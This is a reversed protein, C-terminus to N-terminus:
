PFNWQEAMAQAISPFFKSRLHRREEDTACSLPETRHWKRVAMKRGSCDTEYRAKPKGSAKRVGVYIPEPPPVARPGGVSFLDDHRWLLPLNRIWLCTRKRIPEGFDFPNIVQDAPRFARHVYGFPNEVCIRPANANYCLLFFALAEERKEARGPKNWHATGAYSLFTCPPCAIVLDWPERLQCTVDGQIHPGPSETPLLDCSIADHGKTIFADRIIGSFECAVLVRVAYGWGM